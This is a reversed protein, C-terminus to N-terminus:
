AEVIGALRYDTWSEGCKSCSVVAEVGDDMLEPSDSSIDTSECFPCFSGNRKVYRSETEGTIPKGM